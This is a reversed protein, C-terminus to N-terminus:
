KILSSFFILYRISKRIGKEKIGTFTFYPLIRIHNKKIQPINGNPTM